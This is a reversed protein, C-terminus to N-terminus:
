YKIFNLGFIEAQLDELSDLLDELSDELSDKDKSCKSFMLDVRFDVRLDLPSDMQSDTQSDKDKRMLQKSIGCGKYYEYLRKGNIDDGFRTAFFCSGGQKATSIAAIASDGFPHFRYENGTTTSDIKAKPSIKMQLNM